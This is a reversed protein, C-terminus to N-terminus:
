DAEDVIKLSGVQFHQGKRDGYDAHNHYNKVRERVYQLGTVPEADEQNEAVLGLRKLLPSPAPKIDVDNGPRVFYFLGLRNGDLQDPPPRVVRHTTSKLYSASWFDMTDGVNCIIGGDVPPVYRWEGGGTKIQLGAVNQSWLLTLSGFDTHARSWTNQVKADDEASRPRYSMYRLHDDSADNYLHKSSFYDPPLELMLAFLEFVKAAVEIAKRSFAEIEVNYPEFWPHRVESENHPTFKAINYLEVNDRVDTGMITKEYIERYGFYNGTAFDCKYEPRSKADHPNAFFGQAIDYQRQVEEETFGTGTLSFFGTNHVADRLEEVLRKKGEESGFISLDLVKIDAWPLDFATKKPRHWKSLQSPQPSKHSAM